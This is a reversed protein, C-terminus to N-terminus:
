SRGVSLFRSHVYLYQLSTFNAVLTPFGSLLTNALSLKKLSTPLVIPLQQLTAADSLDLNNLVVNTVNTQSSIVDSGFTVKAVKSKVSANTSSGGALIFSTTTPELAITSINSLADNSASAYASTEDPIADVQADFASGSSGSETATERSSEYSGFAVLFTFTDADNSPQSFCQVACEDATVCTAGSPCSSAAYALCPEYQNCADNCNTSLTLATLGCASVGSGQLWLLVAAGATM